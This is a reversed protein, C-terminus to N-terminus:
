RFRPMATNPFLGFAEVVYLFVCLLILVNIVTKIKSDMPVMTNLLYLGVGVLILVIILSFM